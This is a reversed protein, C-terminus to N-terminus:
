LPIVKNIADKLKKVYRDCSRACLYNILARAYEHKNDDTVIVEKGNPKLVVEEEKGAEDGVFYTFNLSLDEANPSDLILKLNRYMDSDYSYFDCFQVEQSCIQRWISRSLFCDLPIRDFLAKGIVVGLLYVM